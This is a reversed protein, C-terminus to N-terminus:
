LCLLLALAERGPWLPADMLQTESAERRGSEAERAGAAGVKGAVGAAQTRGQSFLFFCVFLLHLQSPKMGRRPSPSGAPLKPKCHTEGARSAPSLRRRPGLGTAWWSDTGGDGPGGARAGGTEAALRCLHNNELRRPFGPDEAADGRPASGDGSRAERACLKRRAGGM